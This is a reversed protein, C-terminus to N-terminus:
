QTYRHHTHQICMHLDSFLETSEEREMKVTSRFIFYLNNYTTWFIFVVAKERAYGLSHRGEGDEM